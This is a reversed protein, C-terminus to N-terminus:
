KKIASTIHALGDLVEIFELEGLGHATFIDRLEDKSYRHRATSVNSWKLLAEAEFGDMRHQAIYSSATEVSMKPSPNLMLLQGSDKTVRVMESIGKEPEPLLFM